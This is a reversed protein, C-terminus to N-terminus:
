RQRAGGAAERGRQPGGRGLRRGGDVELAVHPRDEGVVAEGAVTRILRRPLRVQPEVRPVSREARPRGSASAVPRATGRDDRAVEVGAQQDLPDVVRVPAPPHRGLHRLFGEGAFLDLRQGAPDLLAGGPVLVPRERGDVPRRRRFDFVFGPAAVRQVAEDQRPEFLVAQRWGLFGVAAGQGAAGGEVQGPQRGVGARERREQVVRFVAGVFPQDVAKERRGVPAFVAGAVPQVGRAVAVGVADVDVVVSLHVGVAVPRDLREVPVLREVLEGDVLDGAVQQRLRSEVLQDGGAELAVVDRRVLAAHHDLLVLRDVGLVPGLRDAAHEHAQGDAARGAVVVLEVRDALPLEVRQGREEAVRRLVHHVAVDGVRRGSEDHGVLVVAVGPVPQALFDALDLVRHRLTAVGDFRGEGLPEFAIAVAGDFPRESALGFEQTEVHVQTHVHVPVIARPGGRDDRQRSRCRRGLGAVCLGLFGGRGGDSLTLPAREREM